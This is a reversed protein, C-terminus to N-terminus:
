TLRELASRLGPPVPQAAMDDRGVFVHVFYGSAAPEAQGERFIGVGYRVSRNGLHEVRVGAEIREPYALPSRYTCKSEVCVGIVTAHHIDLGGETILFHNVATDFYAYYQVNNVHGYIDNDMWRTTITHFWPYDTRLPHADSM